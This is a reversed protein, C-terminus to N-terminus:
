QLFVGAGFVATAGRTPAHISITITYSGQDRIVTAGRTPAHISIATLAFIASSPM